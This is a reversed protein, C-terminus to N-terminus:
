LISALYDAFGGEGSQRLNNGMRSPAANPQASQTFPVVNQVQQPNTLAQLQSRVTRAIEDRVEASWGSRSWKPSSMVQRAAQVVLPRLAEHNLDGHTKYFDEFVSQATVASNARETAMAPLTKLLEGMVAKLENRVNQHVM